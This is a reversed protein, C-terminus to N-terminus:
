ALGRRSRILGPMVVGRVGQPRGWCGCSTQRSPVETRRPGAPTALLPASSRTDTGAPRPAEHQGKKWSQRVMRRPNVLAQRGQAAPSLAGSLSEARSVWYKGPVQSESLSPSGHGQTHLAGGCNSACGLSRDQVRELQGASPRQYSAWSPLWGRGTGALWICSKVYRLIVCRTSLLALSLSWM